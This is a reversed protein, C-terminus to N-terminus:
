SQGSHHNEKYSSKSQGISRSPPARSSRIPTGSAPRDSSDRERPPAINERQSWARPPGKGAAREEGDRGHRWGPPPRRFQVRRQGHSAPAALPAPPRDRGHRGGEKWERRWSRKDCRGARSPQQTAGGRKRQGSPPRVPPLARARVRARVSPRVPRRAAGGRNAGTAGVGRCGAHPVTAPPRRSVRRTIVRPPPPSAM